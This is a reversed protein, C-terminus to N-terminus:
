ISVFLSADTGAVGATGALFTGSASLLGTPRQGRVIIKILKTLHQTLNARYLTVFIGKPDLVARALPVVQSKGKPHAPPLLVEYNALNQASTRDMAQSFQLRFGAVRRSHPAYVLSVHSSVTPPPADTNNITLAAVIPSGLPASFTPPSGSVSSPIYNSIYLNETKNGDFLHDDLVPLFVTKSTDTSGFTVYPNVVVNGSSDLQLIEADYNVGNKATGDAPVVLVTESGSPLTGTALQRVVEIPAFGQNENAVYSSSSLAITGPSLPGSYEVDIAPLNLSAIGQLTFNAFAASSNKAELSVRSEYPALGPVSTGNPFVTVPSGVVTPTLVLSVTAATFNVVAHAHILQGSALNTVNQATVIAANFSLYVVGNTTDFGFALSGAYLGQQPAISSAPGSTGFNATNLLAFSMGVGKSTPLSAPPTVEFVWDATVQGFTGPDSTVFSISNDNGAAPSTPTTALLLSGGSTSVTETAPPPGGVQQLVFTTGAGNFNQITALLERRELCEVGL